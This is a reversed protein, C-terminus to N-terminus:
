DLGSFSIRSESRVIEGVKGAVVCIPRAVDGDDDHLDAPDGILSIPQTVCLSALELTALGCHNLWPRKSRMTAPVRRRGCIGSAYPNASSSSSLLLM